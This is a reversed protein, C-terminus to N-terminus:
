WSGRHGPTTAWAQPPHHPLTQRGQLRAPPGKRASQATRPAPLSPPLLQLLLELAASSQTPEGQELSLVSQALRLSGPARTPAAGQRWWTTGQCERSGPGGLRGPCLMRNLLLSQAPKWGKPRDEIGLFHCHTPACSSLPGRQLPCRWSRGPEDRLHGVTGGAGTSPHEPARPNGWHSAALSLAGPLLIGVHACHSAPAARPHHASVWRGRGPDM